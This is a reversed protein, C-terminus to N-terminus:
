ACRRPSRPAVRRCPTSPRARRGRPGLLLEVTAIRGKLEAVRARAAQFLGPADTERAEILFREYHELAQLDRGLERLTQALNFQLKPSPFAAYAEEFRKLAELYQGEDLLRNGELLLAKARDRGPEAREAARATGGSSGTSLVAFLLAVCGLRERRFM